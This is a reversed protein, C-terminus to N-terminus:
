LATGILTGAKIATIRIHEVFAFQGGILRACALVANGPSTFNRVLNLSINGEPYDTSNSSNAGEYGYDVSTAAMLKCTVRQSTGGQVDLKASLAYKGAALPLSAITQYVNAAEGISVGAQHYGSEVCPSNNVTPTSPCDTIVAPAGHSATWAGFLLIAVALGVLKLHSGFVHRLRAM